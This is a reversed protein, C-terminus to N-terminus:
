LKYAQRALLKWSDEEERWVMLVGVNVANVKGESETEAVTIFRSIGLDHSVKNTMDKFALSKYTSKGSTSAAIFAAKDEIKGASHGYSLAPSCLKEFAAKDAKLMAVRFAEVAQALSAEDQKGARAARSLGAAAVLAGAGIALHRRDVKM